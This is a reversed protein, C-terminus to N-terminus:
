PYEGWGHIIANTQRHMESKMNRVLGSILSFEMSSTISGDIAGVREYNDARNYVFVTCRVQAIDQLYM